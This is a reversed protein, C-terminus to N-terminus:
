LDIEFGFTYETDSKLIDVYPTSHHRYKLNLYIEGLGFRQDIIITEWNSRRRYGQDMKSLFHAPPPPLAALLVSALFPLSQVVLVLAFLNIERVREHNTAYVWIAGIVLLAGIVAEWFAPFDPGRRGSGGKATVVFPLHDKVLGDAVARSHCPVLAKEMAAGRGAQADAFAWLRQRVDLDLSPHVWLRVTMDQYPKFTNRVVRFPADPRLSRFTEVTQQALGDDCCVVQAAERILHFLRERGRALNGGAKRGYLDSSCM